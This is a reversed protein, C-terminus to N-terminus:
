VHARGIELFQYMRFQPILFVQQPIMMTALIMTFVQNKGKFDFRVFGYSVLSCIVMAFVSSTLSVFASNMFMTWFPIREFLTHFADLSPSHPILSLANRSIEIDTKFSSSLMYFFPVAIIIVILLTAAYILSNKLVTIRMNM